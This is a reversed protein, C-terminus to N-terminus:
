GGGARDRRICASGGPGGTVPYGTMAVWRTARVRARHCAGRLLGSDTMGPRHWRTRAVRPGIVPEADLGSDRSEPDPAPAGDRFSSSYIAEDSQEECHRPDSAM